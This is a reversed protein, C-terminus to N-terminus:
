FHGLIFNENKGTRNFNKEDLKDPRSSTKAGGICLTEAMGKGQILLGDHIWGNIKNEADFKSIRLTIWLM